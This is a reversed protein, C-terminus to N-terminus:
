SNFKFAAEYLADNDDGIRISRWDAASGAFYVTTLSPCSAFAGAAIHTLSPHLSLERSGRAVPCYLLMRGDTTYLVGDQILFSQNGAAIRVHMLRTCGAFSDASLASIGAPLEIASVNDSALAGTLVGTVTDGGPSKPPILLYTDKCSGLGSLACTGDGNSRFSLGQSYSKEVTLAQEEQKQTPTQAAQQTAEQTSQTNASDEKASVETPTALVVCSCIIVVLLGLAGVMKWIKM